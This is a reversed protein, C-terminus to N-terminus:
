EQDGLKDNLEIILDDPLEGGAMECLLDLIDVSKPGDGSGWDLLRAEVVEFGSEEEPEELTAPRGKWGRIKFRIEHGGVEHDVWAYQTRPATM